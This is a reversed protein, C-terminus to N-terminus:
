AECRQEAAMLDNIDVAVEEGKIVEVIKKPIYSSAGNAKTVAKSHKAQAKVAADLTRHTSITHNNFTDILKFMNKHPATPTM